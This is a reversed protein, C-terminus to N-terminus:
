GLFDFLSTRPARAQAGLTAEQHVKALSLEVLAEAVDADQALGLEKKRAVLSGKNLNIADKVRNQTHGYFTTERGLHQLSKTLLASAAEVADRDNNELARGLSYVAQFANEETRNGLQDTADFIQHASHGISFQSGNIDQIQRTNNAAALVTVGAPQTWDVKYLGQSDLDGSFVFRGESSTSALHVLQEHLQRAEIGMAARDTATDTAGQAALVRAREVIQVAVRVAAEATDVEASVRDLMAGIADGRGVESRLQLIDMVREPADSSRGVRLGSSIARQVKQQRADIHNLGDLFREVQANVSKIM